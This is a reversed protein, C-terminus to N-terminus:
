QAQKVSDAALPVLDNAIRRVDQILLTSDRQISDKEPIYNKYNKWANAYKRNHKLTRGRETLNEYLLKEADFTYKIGVGATMANGEEIPTGIRRNQIDLDSQSYIDTHSNPNIKMTIRLDKNKPAYMSSKTADTNFKMWSKSQEMYPSDNITQSNGFFNFDIYNKMDNNLEVNDKRSISRRVKTTDSASITDHELTSSDKRQNQAKLSSSACIM